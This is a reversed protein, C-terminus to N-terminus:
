DVLPLATKWGLKVSGQAAPRIDPEQLSALPQHQRYRSKGTRARRTPAREFLEEAVQDGRGSGDHFTTETHSELLGGRVVRLSMRRSAFGQEYTLVLEPKHADPRLTASAGGWACDSPHCRGWARVFFEGGENRVVIRTLGRTRPDEAKWVGVLQSAELRLKGVTPGDSCRSSAPASVVLLTMAAGACSLLKDAAAM